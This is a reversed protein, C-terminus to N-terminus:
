VSQQQSESRYSKIKVDKSKITVNIHRQLQLLSTSAVFAVAVGVVMSVVGLLLGVM